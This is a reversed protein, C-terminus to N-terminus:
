IQNVPDLDFQVFMGNMDKGDLYSEAYERVRTLEDTEPSKIYIVFRYYDRIRSINGPAPGLVMKAGNSKIVDRLYAALLSVKKEDTGGGRM